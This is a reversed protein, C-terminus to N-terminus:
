IKLSYKLIIKEIIFYKILDNLDLYSLCNILCNENM